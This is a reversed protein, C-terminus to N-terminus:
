TCVKHLEFERCLEKKGSRCGADHPVWEEDYGRIDGNCDCDWVVPPYPLPAPECTEEVELGGGCTGYLAVLPEVEDKTLDSARDQRPQWNYHHAHLTREAYLWVGRETQHKVIAM